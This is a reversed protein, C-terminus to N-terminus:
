LMERCNSSVAALFYLQRQKASLTYVALNLAVTNSIFYQCKQWFVDMFAYVSYFSASTEFQRPSCLLVIKFSAASSCIIQKKKDTTM